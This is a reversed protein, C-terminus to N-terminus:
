PWRVPWVRRGRQASAAPWPVVWRPLGDSTGLLLKTTGDAAVRRHEEALRGILPQGERAEREELGERWARPLVTISALDRAGRQYLWDHLQRGRFAPQGEAVAWRELAELSQGLLPPTVTLSPVSVARLSPRSGAEM